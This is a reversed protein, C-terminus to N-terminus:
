KKNQNFWEKARLICGGMVDDAYADMLEFMREEQWKAGAAFSTADDWTGWGEAYKEAAEELTEQKNCFVAETIQETTLHNVSEQPIIIKHCDALKEEEFSRWKLYDNGIEVKECSPNKVLFEDGIPQVGDAILDQDTTLIIKKYNKKDHLKDFWGIPLNNKVIPNNNDGYDIGNIPCIYIWYDGEKIEEDSTIYLHQNTVERITYYDGIALKGFCKFLKSPKDTSILHVNKM